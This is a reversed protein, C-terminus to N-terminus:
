CKKALISIALVIGIVAFLVIIFGGMMLFKGFGGLLKTATSPEKEMGLENITGDQLKRELLSPGTGTRKEIHIDEPWKKKQPVIYYGDYLILEPHENLSDFNKIEVGKDKDLVSGVEFIRVAVGDVGQIKAPTMAQNFMYIRDSAISHEKTMFSAITNLNDVKGKTKRLKITPAEASAQANEVKHGKESTPNAM